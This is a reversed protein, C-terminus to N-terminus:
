WAQTEGCHPCSVSAIVPAQFTSGCQCGYLARDQPGGDSTREGTARASGSGGATRRPGRAHTAPPGNRRSRPSPPGQPAANKRASRLRMKM